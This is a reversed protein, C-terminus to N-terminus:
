LTRLGTLKEDIRRAAEIAQELQPALADVLERMEGLIAQMRALAAREEKLLALFHAFMDGTAKFRPPKRPWISAFRQAAAGYQQVLKARRATAEQIAAAASEVLDQDSM